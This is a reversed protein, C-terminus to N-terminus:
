KSIYIYEPATALSTCKPEGLMVRFGNRDLRRKAMVSSDIIMMWRDSRSGLLQREDDDDDDLGSTM